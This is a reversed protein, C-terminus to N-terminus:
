DVVPVFIFDGGDHDLERMDAYQPTQQAASTVKSLVSKFIAGAPTPQQTDTLADVLATAFVSNESGGVSDVVPENGGSTIAVKAKRSFLRQVVAAEASATPQGGSRLLKGSYCSDAVLLMHRVNISKLATMIESSSVWDPQFDLPGNAPVWYATDTERDVVGHGAYYILLHDMFELENSLSYLAKLTDRRSADKLYTVEFGFQRELLNGIVEVDKHPTELPSWETYDQNSILLAKFKGTALRIESKYELDSISQRAKVLNTIRKFNRAKSKLNGCTSEDYVLENNECHFRLYEGFRKLESDIEVVHPLLLEAMQYGKGSAAVEGLEAARLTTRFAQDIDGRDILLDFLPSAAELQGRSLAKDLWLEGLNTNEPMGEGSLYAQGVLVQSRPFGYYALSEHILLSAPVDEKYGITGDKVADANSEVFGIIGALAGAEIGSKVLAVSSEFSGGSSEDILYQTLFDLLGFSERKINDVYVREVFQYDYGAYKGLALEWAYAANFMPIDSSRLMALVDLPTRSIEQGVDFELYWYAYDVLARSLPDLEEARNAFNALSEYARYSHAYNYTYSQTVNLLLSFVKLEDSSKETAVLNEFESSTPFTSSPLLFTSRAWLKFPEPWEGWKAGIADVTQPLCGGWHQFADNLALEQDVKALDRCSLASAHMQASFVLFFIPFLKLKSM